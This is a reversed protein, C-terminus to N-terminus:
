REGRMVRPQEARVQDVQGAPVATASFAVDDVYLNSRHGPSPDSDKDGDSELRIQVTVTQGAWASLDTSRRVWGYSNSAVCTSYLDAVVSGNVIVVAYDNGCVYDDSDIWHWYTLHPEDATITVAQEISSIEGYGWGLWAAWDGSHPMVPLYNKHVILDYDYTSFETWGAQQAEFDGNELAKNALQGSDVVLPLFIDNGLAPRQVFMLMNFADVIGAGCASTTCSSGAPFVRASAQLAGSIEAPSLTPDLGIALSALGAVHPAAMSTGQYFAYTHNGPGTAGSNLTSLVGNFAQGVTEGGPASVEVISGYNSYYARNGTRATAAVTISNECSAPSFDAANEGDNGAAIVVTAGAAVADDIAEQELRDCSGRGGLSLNIVDAPNANVPADPVALGGADYRRV